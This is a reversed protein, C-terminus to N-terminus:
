EGVKIKEAKVHKRILGLVVTIQSGMSERPLISCYRKGTYLLLSNKTEKVSLIQEWTIHAENEEQTSTIGEDSVVYTLPKQFIPSLKAQKAARFYLMVPQLPLLYVTFLLYVATMAASVDGFTVIALILTGIGFLISFIGSFSHYTHFLQFDFLIKPTMKVEFEASM